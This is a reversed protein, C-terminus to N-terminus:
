RTRIWRNFVITSIDGEIVLPKAILQYNVAIQIVLIRTRVFNAGEAVPENWVAPWTVRAM